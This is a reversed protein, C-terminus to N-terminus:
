RRAWSSHTVDVLKGLRVGLLGGEAAIDEGDGEDCSGEQSHGVAQDGTGFAFACFAGIGVGVGGGLVHLGVPGGVLEVAGLAGM